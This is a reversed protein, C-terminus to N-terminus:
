IKKVFLRFLHFLARPQGMKLFLIHLQVIFTLDVSRLGSVLSQPSTTKLARKNVNPTTNNKTNLPCM